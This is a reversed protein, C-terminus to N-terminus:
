TGVFTQFKKPVYPVNPYMLSRTCLPGVPTYLSIPTHRFMCRMEQVNTDFLSIIEFRFYHTASELTSNVIRKVTM